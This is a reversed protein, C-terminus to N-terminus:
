SFSPGLAVCGLLKWQKLRVEHAAHSNLASDAAAADAASMRLSVANSEPRFGDEARGGEEDLLADQFTCANWSNLM